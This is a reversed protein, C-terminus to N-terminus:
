IRPHAFYQVSGISSATLNTFVVTTAVTCYFGSIDIASGASCDLSVNLAPLQPSSVNIALVPNTPDDACLAFIFTGPAFTIQNTGAALTAYKLFTGPQGGNGAIIITSRPQSVKFSM